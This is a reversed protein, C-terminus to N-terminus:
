GGTNPNPLYIGTGRLRITSPAGNFFTPQGGWKSRYMPIRDIHDGFTDSSDIARFTERNFYQILATKRLASIARLEYSGDEPHVNVEETKGSWILEPTTTLQMTVPDLFSRYISVPRNFIDERLPEYLSASGTAVLTNVGCLKLTVDRPFVDSEEEIASIEGLGGVPVYTNSNFYLFQRGTCFYVSGSTVDVNVLMRFAILSDASLSQVATSTIRNSM